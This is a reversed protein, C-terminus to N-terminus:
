ATKWIYGGDAIEFCNIGESELKTKAINATFYDSFSAVTVFSDTTKNVERPGEM